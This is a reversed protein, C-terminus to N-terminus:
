KYYKKYSILISSAGFESTNIKFRKKNSSLIGLLKNVEYIDLKPCKLEM